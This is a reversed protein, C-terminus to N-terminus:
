LRVTEQAEQCSPGNVGAMTLAQRVPLLIHTVGIPTIGIRIVVVGEVPVILVRRADILEQGRLRYGLQEEPFGSILEGEGALGDRAPVDHLDRAHDDTEGLSATPRREDIKRRLLGPVVPREGDVPVVANPRELVRPLVVLEDGCRDGRLPDQEIHKPM